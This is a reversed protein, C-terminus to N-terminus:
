KKFNGKEDFVSRFDFAKKPEEKEKKPNIDEETGMSVQQLLNGNAEILMEKDSKLKTIEADKEKNQKEYSAKVTMISALDDAIKSSSDKGLKKQISQTIKDLDTEM